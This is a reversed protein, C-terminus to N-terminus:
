DENGCLTWTCNGINETTETPTPTPWIYETEPSYPPPEDISSFSLAYSNLLLSISFIFVNQM